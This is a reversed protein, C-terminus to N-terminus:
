DLSNIIFSTVRAVDDKDITDIRFFNKMRMNIFEIPYIIMMQFIEEVTIEVRVANNHKGLALVESCCTYIKERVEDSQKFSYDHMLIYLFKITDPNEKASTFIMRILKEAVESFSINAALLKDLYDFLLTTQERLIDCVLEYKGKYHRYLYGESVGSEKAIMVTSANSYGKEVILKIMAQRILVIKTQDTQRAM